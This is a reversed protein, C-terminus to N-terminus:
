IPDWLLRSINRAEPSTPKDLDNLKVLASEGLSDSHTLSAWLSLWNTQNMQNIRDHRRYPIAIAERTAMGAIFEKLNLQPWNMDPESGQYDTYGTYFSTIM